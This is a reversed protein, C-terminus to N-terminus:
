EEDEWDDTVPRRKRSRMGGNEWEDSKARRQRRKKGRSRKPDIKREEGQKPRSRRKTFRQDNSETFRSGVLWSLELPDTQSVELETDCQDCYAQQAIYPSQNFLVHSNCEPCNGSIVITKVM